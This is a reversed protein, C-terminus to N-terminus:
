AGSRFAAASPVNASAKRPVTASARSRLSAGTRSYRVRPGVSDPRRRRRPPATPAPTGTRSPCGPRRAAPRARRLVRLRRSGRGLSGPRDSRADHRGVVGVVFGPAPDAVPLDLEVNGFQEALDLPQGIPRRRGDVLFPREHQRGALTARERRVRDDAVRRPPLAVGVAGQAEALLVGGREAHLGARHHAQRRPTTDTSTATSGFGRIREPVCRAASRCPGPKPGVSVTPMAGFSSVEPSSRSSCEPM